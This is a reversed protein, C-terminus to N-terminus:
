WEAFVSGDSAKGQAGSRVDYVGGKQPDDPAVVVWTSASETLPDVPVKRLYKEAALAELSEPYKGKDGYDKGIADRMQYLDERLVAEKSRDLSGFYRPVALTLLVAIIAMVVLLEILTFGSRARVPIM